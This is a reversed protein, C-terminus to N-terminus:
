RKLAAELDFEEQQIGRYPLIKKPLYELGTAVAMTEARGHTEVIGAVVDIGEDMRVKAEQLMAYTKGVGPAMGFFIKLQARQERAEKDQVKKLLDDPNPRKPEM